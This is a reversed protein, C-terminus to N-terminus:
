FLVTTTSSSFSLSCIITSHLAIVKAKGHIGTPLTHAEVLWIKSGLHEGALHTLVLPCIVYIQCEYTRADYINEWAYDYLHL